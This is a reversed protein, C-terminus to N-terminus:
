QYGDDETVTVAAADGSSALPLLRPPPTLARRSGADGFSDPLKDILRAVAIKWQSGVGYVMEDGLVYAFYGSSHKTIFIEKMLTRILGHRPLYAEWLDVSDEVDTKTM